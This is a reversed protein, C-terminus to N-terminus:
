QIHVLPWADQTTCVQHLDLFFVSIDSEPAGRTTSSLLCCNYYVFPVHLSHVTHQFVPSRTITSSSSTSPYLACHPPCPVTHIGSDLPEPTKSCTLPSDSHVDQSLANWAPLFALATAGLHSYAWFTHALLNARGPLLIFSPLITFSSLYPDLM